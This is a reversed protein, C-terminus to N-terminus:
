TPCAPTLTLNFPPAPTEKGDLHYHSAGGAEGEKEEESGAKYDTDIAEELPFTHLKARVTARSNEKLKM